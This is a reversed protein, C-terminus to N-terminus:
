ELVGRVGATFRAARGGRQHQIQITDSDFRVKQLFMIRAVDEIAVDSPWTDGLTLTETSQDPAESASTITRDYTTGDNLEVRLAANPEQVNVDQLYGSWFVTMKDSGSVLADSLVLDERFTPLYFSIHRGGLAHLLRRVNWRAEPGIAFFSKSRTNRSRPEFPTIYRVGTQSDVEYFTTALGDRTTTRQANFDDLLVKGNFSSFASTEAIDVDNDLVEFDINLEGLNVPYRAGELNPRLRAPVVPVVRAGVPYSASLGSALTLTTSTLSNITRIEYDGDPVFILVLGDVRYDRFETSNVTITSSGASAAVALRVEHEWLPCGWQATQAAALKRDIESRRRDDDILYRHSLIARPNKRLRIRQEKGAKDLVDTLFIMSEDIEDEPVLVGQSTAFPVIRTFEIVVPCVGASWTFDITSDVVADGELLFRVKVNDLQTFAAITTPLSPEDVIDIGPGDNNTWSNWTQDTRRYANVLEMVTDTVGGIIGPRIVRPLVHVDEFWISTSVSDDRVQGNLERGAIVRTPDDNAADSFAGPLGGLVTSEPLWEYADFTPSTEVHLSIRRWSPTGLGYVSQIEAGDDAIAM